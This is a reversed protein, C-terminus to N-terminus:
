SGLPMVPWGSQCPGSLPMAMLCWCLRLNCGLGQANKHGKTNSRVVADVCVSGPQPLVMSESMTRLLLGPGSTVIAGTCAVCILMAGTTTHGRSGQCKITDPAVSILVAGPPLLAVSESRARSLLAPMFSLRQAQTTDLVNGIHAWEEEGEIRRNQRKGCCIFRKM